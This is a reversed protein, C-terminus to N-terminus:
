NGDGGFLQNDGGVGYIKNNGGVGHLEDDGAGGILTDNGHGGYALNGFDGGKFKNRSQHTVSVSDYHHYPNSLTGSDGNSGWQHYWTDNDLGYYTVKGTAASADTGSYLWWDTTHVNTKPRYNSYVTYDAMDITTTDSGVTLLGRSKVTLRDTPLGNSQKNGYVDDYGDTTFFGGQGDKTLTPGSEMDEPVYQDLGLDKLVSWTSDSYYSKKSTTM